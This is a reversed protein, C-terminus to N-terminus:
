DDAEPGGPRVILTAPDSLHLYKEERMGEFTAIGAFVRWEGAPVNDIVISQQSGMRKSDYQVCTRDADQIIFCLMREEVEIGVTATIRIALPSLGVSPTVKVTIPKPAAAAAPTTLALAVLTAALLRRLSCGGLNSM